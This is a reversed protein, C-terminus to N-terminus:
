VQLWKVGCATEARHGVQPGTGVCLSRLSSLDLKLHGVSLGTPERGQVEETRVKLGQGLM